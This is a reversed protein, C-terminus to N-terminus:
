CFFLLWLATSVAMELALDMKRSCASMSLAESSFDITSFLGVDSCLSYPVLEGPSRYLRTFLLFTIFRTRMFPLFFYYVMGPFIKRSTLFHFHSKFFSVDGGLGALEQDIYLNPCHPM